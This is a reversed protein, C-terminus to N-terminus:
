SHLKWIGQQISAKAPVKMFVTSKWQESLVALLPCLFQHHGALLLCLCPVGAAAPIHRSRACGKPLAPILHCCTQSWGEPSEKLNPLHLRPGGRARCHRATHEPQWCNTDWSTKPTIM